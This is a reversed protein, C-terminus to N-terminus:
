DNSKKKGITAIIVDRLNEKLESENEWVIHSYQRTDFHVNKFDDSRVCWIVPIGLGHAFGAEYYVNAKQQTVESVVFRSNKIEAIIKADIRELHPQNVMCPHYGTSKIALEIANTYVPLMCKDFSMAVFGQIKSTIDTNNNEIHEWGNATIVVRYERDAPVHGKKVGDDRVLGRDVLSQVYYEFEKKNHAWALSMDQSSKLHVQKGPYETYLEVAKLLKNQKELPSYSPLTNEVEELFYSKLMPTEIGLMNRERLWASLEASKNIKPQDFVTRSITYRGCRACECTINDGNSLIKQNNLKCIPCHNDPENMFHGKICNGIGERHDALLRDQILRVGTKM